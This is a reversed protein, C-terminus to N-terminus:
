AQEEGSEQTWHPREEAFADIPSILIVHEYSILLFSTKYLMTKGSSDYVCAGTVALFRGAESNLEDKLRRDPRVYVQGIVLHETTRVLARVTDKAVHPTFFKGRDDIRVDM